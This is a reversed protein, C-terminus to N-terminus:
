DAKWLAAQLQSGLTSTEMFAGFSPNMLFRRSLTAVCGLRLNSPSHSGAPHYICLTCAVWSYVPGWPPLLCSLINEVETKQKFLCFLQSKHKSLKRIEGIRSRMVESTSRLHSGPRDNVACSISSMSYFIYPHTWTLPCSKFNLKQFSTKFFPLKM